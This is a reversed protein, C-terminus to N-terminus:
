FESMAFVVRVTVVFENGSVPAEFWALHPDDEPGALEEISLVEGVRLHSEEALTQAKARAEAIARERAREELPVANAFGFRVNEIREVENQEAVELIDPFLNLDRLILTVTQTMHYDGESGVLPLKDLGKAIRQLSRAGALMDARPVNARELAQKLDTMRTQCRLFAGQPKPAAAELVLDVSVLNPDMSVRGVGTIEVTRSTDLEPVEFVPMQPTDLCATSLAVLLLSVATLSRRRVGTHLVPRSSRHLTSAM